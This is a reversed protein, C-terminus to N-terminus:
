AEDGFFSSDDVNEPASAAAAPLLSRSPGPAARKVNGGTAATAKTKRTETKEPLGAFLRLEENAAKNAKLQDFVWTAVRIAVRVRETAKHKDGGSGSVIEYIIDDQDTVNKYANTTTTAHHVLTKNRFTPDEVGHRAAIELLKQCYALRQGPDQITGIHKSIAARATTTTQAPPKGAYAEETGQRSSRTTKARFEGLEAKLSAVMSHLEANSEKIAALEKVLMTTLTELEAVYKPHVADIAKSIVSVIFQQNQQQQPSNPSAAM